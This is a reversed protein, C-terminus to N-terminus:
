EDLEERLLDTKPVIKGKSHRAEGYRSRGGEIRKLIKDTDMEIAIKLVDKFFKKYGEDNRILDAGLANRLIERAQDEFTETSSPNKIAYTIESYILSWKAKVEPNPFVLQQINTM